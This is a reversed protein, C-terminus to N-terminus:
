NIIGRDLHKTRFFPMKEERPTLKSSSPYPGRCIERMIELAEHTEYRLYGLDYAERLM